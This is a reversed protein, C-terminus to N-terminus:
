TRSWASQSRTQGDLMGGVLAEILAGQTGGGGTADAMVGTHCLSLSVAYHAQVM